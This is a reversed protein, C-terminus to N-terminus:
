SIFLKEVLSFVETPSGSAEVKKVLDEKAYFDIIPKTSDVYTVFRKQLSELNDDDRGSGAAGRGLCREVCIDKPCDFFLVFKLNTKDGMQSNWGTMNDENRPFGDILFNNGKGAASAEKMAQELLSCTIEVPVIRGDKIYKEILDKYESTTKKREARLLDGASLHIYKFKEVIKECQTGKGAGPAGLVFVVNPKGTAM